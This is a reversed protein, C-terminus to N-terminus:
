NAGDKDPAPQQWGDPHEGVPPQEVRAFTQGAVAEDEVAAAADAPQAALGRQSCGTM